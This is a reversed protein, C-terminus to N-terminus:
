GQQYDCSTFDDDRRTFVIVYEATTSQTCSENADNFNYGFVFVIKEDSLECEDEILEFDKKANCHFDFLKKYAEVNLTTYASINM